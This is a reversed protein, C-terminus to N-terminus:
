IRCLTQSWLARSPLNWWTSKTGPRPHSRRSILSRLQGHVDISSTAKCLVLSREQGKTTVLEM